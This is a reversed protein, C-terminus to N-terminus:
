KRSLPPVDTLSLWFAAVHDILLLKVSNEQVQFHGVSRSRDQGGSECTTRSVFRSWNDDHGTTSSLVGHLLYKRHFCKRGASVRRYAFASYITGSRRQHFTSLRRRDARTGSWVSTTQWTPSRDSVRLSQFRLGFRSAPPLRCKCGLSVTRSREPQGNRNDQLGVPVTTQVFSVRCPM